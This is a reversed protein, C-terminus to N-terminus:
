PQADAAPLLSVCSTTFGESAFTNELLTYAGSPPCQFLLAECSALFSGACVAEVNCVSPEGAPVDYQSDIAVQAVASCARSGSCVRLDASGLFGCATCAVQVTEGPTCPTGTANAVLSWGCELEATFSPQVSGDCPLLPDREPVHVPLELTNNDPNSELDKWDPNISVRLVYDGPPVNTIDLWQCEFDESYIAVTRQQLGVLSCDSPGFSDTPAVACQNAIGMGQAVLGDGEALLEYRLFSESYLTGDCSSQTIGSMGPVGLVFDADGLNATHVTFRLLRRAGAGGVCGKDVACSNDFRDSVILRESFKPAQIADAFVVLDPRPCRQGPGVEACSGLRGTLCCIQEAPCDTDRTCLLRTSTRISGSSSEDESAADPERLRGADAERSARSDAPAEGAGRCASLSLALAAWATIRGRMPDQTV